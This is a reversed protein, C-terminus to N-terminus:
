TTLHCINIKISIYTTSRHIHALFMYRRRIVFIAISNLYNMPYRINVIVRCSEIMRRYKNIGESSRFFLYKLINKPRPWNQKFIETARGEPDFRRFACVGSSAGTSQFDFFIYVCIIGGSFCCIRGRGLWWACALLSLAVRFIKGYSM